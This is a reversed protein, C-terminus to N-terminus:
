HSDSRVLRHIVFHNDSCSIYYHQQRVTRYFHVGHLITFILHSAAWSELYELIPRDTRHLWCGCHLINLIILLLNLLLLWVEM